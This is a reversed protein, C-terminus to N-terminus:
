YPSKEVPHCACHKTDEADPDELWRYPDPVAVGHLLDVVGDRRVM